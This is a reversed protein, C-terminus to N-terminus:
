YSTMEVAQAQQSTVQGFQIRQYVLPVKSIDNNAIDLASQGCKLYIYEVYVGELEDGHTLLKESFIVTDSLEPCM